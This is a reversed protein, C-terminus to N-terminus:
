KEKADHEREGNQRADESPKTDTNDGRHVVTDYRRSCASSYGNDATARPPSGGRPFNMTLFCDSGERRGYQVM